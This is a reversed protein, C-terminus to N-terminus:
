SRERKGSKFEVIKSALSSKESELSAIKNDYNKLDVVYLGIEHELTKVSNSMAKSKNQLLAYEKMSIITIRRRLLALHEEIEKINRHILDLEVQLYALNGEVKRRLFAFHAIQMEIETQANNGDPKWLDQSM